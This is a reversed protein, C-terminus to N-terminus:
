DLVSPGTVGDSRDAVNPDAVQPDALLQDRVGVHLPGVLVRRQLRKTEWLYAVKQGGRAHRRNHVAITGEHLPPDAEVARGVLM